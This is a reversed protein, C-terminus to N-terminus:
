IPISQRVQDFGRVQRPSIIHFKVWFREKKENYFSFTNCGFQRTL